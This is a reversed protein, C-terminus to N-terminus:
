DENFMGLGMGMGGDFDDEDEWDEVLADEDAIAPEFSTHKGSTSTFGDNELRDDFTTAPPLTAGPTKKMIGLGQMTYSFPAAKFATINTSVSDCVRGFPTSSMIVSGAGSVVAGGVDLLKRGAARRRKQMDPSMWWEVTAQGVMYVVKGNQVTANVVQDKFKQATIRSEENGNFMAEVEEAPIMVYEQEPGPHPNPELTSSTSPNLSILDPEELDHPGAPPAHHPSAEHSQPRDYKDYIAVQQLERRRVSTDIPPYAIQGLDQRSAQLDPRDHQYQSSNRRSTYRSPVRGDQQRYQFTTPTRPSPSHSLAPPSSHAPDQWATASSLHLRGSGAASAQVPGPTSAGASGYPTLPEHDIDDDDLHMQDMAAAEDLENDFTFLPEEYELYDSEEMMKSSPRHKRM